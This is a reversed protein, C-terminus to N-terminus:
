DLLEDVTAKEVKLGQFLGPGVEGIREKLLKEADSYRESKSSQRFIRGSASYKIWWHGLEVKSGDPLKKKREFITGFQPKRNM